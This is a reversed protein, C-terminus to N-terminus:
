DKINKGKNSSRIKDESDWDIQFAADLTQSIGFVANFPLLRKFAAKDANTWEKDDTLTSYSNGLTKIIDNGVGTMPGLAAEWISKTYRNNSSGMAQDIAQASWGFIGLMEHHALGASVYDDVERLPKGNYIDRIYERMMGMGWCVLFATTVKSKDIRGQIIPILLKQASGLMFRKFTFMMSLVPNDVSRPLVAASPTPNVTTEMKKFANLVKNAIEPEWKEINAFELGEGTTTHMEFMSRIKAYDEPHIGIDYFMRSLSKDIKKSTVLHRLEGMMMYNTTMSIWDDVQDMLNIKFAQNATWQTWQQVKNQDIGTAFDNYIDRNMKTLANCALGFNNLARKNMKYKSHDFIAQHFMKIHTGLTRMLGFHLVQNTTDLMAPLWFMGSKLIHVVNRAFRISSLVSENTLLNKDKSISTIGRIRNWAAEVDLIQNEFKKRFKNAEEAKLKLISEDFVAKLSKRLPEFSASGFEMHLYSAPVISKIENTLLDDANLVLWEKAELATVDLVRSKTLGPKGLRHYDISNITDGPLNAMSLATKRASRRLSKELESDIIKGDRLANKLFVKSYLFEEFSNLDERIKKINWVRHIHSEDFKTKIDKGTYKKSKIQEIQDEFPKIAEKLRLEEKKFNNSELKQKEKSLAKYKARLEALEDRLKRSAAKIPEIEQAALDILGSEVALDALPDKVTERLKRATEQVIPNYSTDGSHMALGVDEMFTKRRQDLDLTTLIKRGITDENMYKSWKSYQDMLILNKKSVLEAQTRISKIEVNEVGESSGWNMLRKSTSAIEPIDSLITRGLGLNAIGKTLIKTDQANYNSKIEKLLLEMSEKTIPGETLDANKVTLFQRLKDANNGLDIDVLSKGVLSFLAGLAGSASVDLVASGTDYLKEQQARIIAEPAAGLMNTAIGWGATQLINKVTSKGVSVIPSGLSMWNLPDALGGTIGAGLNKWFGARETARKFNLEDDFSEKIFNAEDFSKAAMLDERIFEYDPNNYYELKTANYNPDVFEEPAYDALTKFIKGASYKPIWSAARYAYEGTLELFGIEPELYEGQGITKQPTPINLSQDLIEQESQSPLDPSVANPINELENLNLRM